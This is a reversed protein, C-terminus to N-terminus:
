TQAPLATRGRQARARARRGRGAPVHPPPLPHLRRPQHVNARAQQGGEAGPVPVEPHGAGTSSPLNNLVNTSPGAYLSSM